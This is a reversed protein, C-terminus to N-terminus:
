PSSSPMRASQVGSSNTIDLLRESAHGRYVLALKWALNYADQIGTNMGLGAFPSHIHVADGALFIRRHHYHRANRNNVRYYALWRADKIRIGMPARADLMAQVEELTPQESADHM